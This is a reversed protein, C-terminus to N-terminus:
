QQGNNRQAQRLKNAAQLTQRVQEGFKAFFVAMKARQGPTLERAVAIFMDRDIEAVRVRGELITQNAQDVQALASSDGETARKIIKSAENIQARVEKRQEDFPHM